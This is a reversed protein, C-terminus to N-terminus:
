SAQPTRAEIHEARHSDARMRYNKSLALHSARAGPDIAQEALAREVKARELLYALEDQVDM